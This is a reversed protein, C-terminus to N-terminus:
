SIRLFNQKMNNRNQSCILEVLVNEFKYLMKMKPFILSYIYINIYIYIYTHTHTHTNPLLQENLVTKNFLLSLNQRYLKPLNIGWNWGSVLVRILFSLLIKILNYLYFKDKSNLLKKFLYIYIMCNEINLFLTHETDSNPCIYKFLIYIYM